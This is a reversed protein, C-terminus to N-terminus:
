RAWGWIYKYYNFDILNYDIGTFDLCPVRNWKKRASFECIKGGQPLSHVNNSGAALADGAGTPVPLESKMMM